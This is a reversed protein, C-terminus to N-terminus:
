KSITKNIMSFFTISLNLMIFKVIKSYTNAYIKFRITAQAPM